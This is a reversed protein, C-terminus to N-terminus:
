TSRGDCEWTGVHGCQVAGRRQQGDGDLDGM